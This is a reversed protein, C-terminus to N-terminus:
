GLTIFVDNLFDILIANNKEVGFIKRFAIDNTSGLYSSVFTM